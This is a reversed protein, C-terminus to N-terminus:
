ADRIALFWLVLVTVGGIVLASTVMGLLLYQGFRRTRPAAILGAPLLGVLLVLWFLEAATRYDFVLRLVAAFLGPLVCVAVLGAFFGSLRVFVPHDRHWWDPETAPEVLDHDSM